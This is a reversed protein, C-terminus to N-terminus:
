YYGAAPWVGTVDPPSSDSTEEAGVGSKPAVLSCSILLPVFLGAMLVAVAAPPMLASFDRKSASDRSFLSRGASRDGLRALIM